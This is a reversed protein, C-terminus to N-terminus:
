LVIGFLRFSLGDFLPDYTVDVKAAMDVTGPKWMELDGSVAKLAKEIM